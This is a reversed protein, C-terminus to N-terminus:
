RLNNRKGISDLERKHMQYDETDTWNGALMRFLDKHERMVKETAAAVEESSAYRITVPKKLKFRDDM